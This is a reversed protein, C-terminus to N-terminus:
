ASSSDQERRNKWTQRYVKEPDTTIERAREAMDTTKDRLLKRTEEGPQPALIFGAVLGIVVGLTLGIAFEAGSTRDGM